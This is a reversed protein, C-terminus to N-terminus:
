VRVDSKASIVPMSTICKSNLHRIRCETVPELYFTTLLRKKVTPTTTSRYKKEGFYQFIFPTCRKIWASHAHNQAYDMCLICLVMRIICPKFSPAHNWFCLKEWNRLLCFSKPSDRRPDKSFMTLCDEWTQAAKNSCKTQLIHVMKMFHHVLHKCATRGLGM